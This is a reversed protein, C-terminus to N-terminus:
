EIGRSQEDPKSRVIITLINANPHPIFSETNRAKSPRMMASLLHPSFFLYCFFLPRESLFIYIYLCQQDPCVPSQPAISSHARRPHLPPERLRLKLLGMTKYERKELRSTSDLRRLERSSSRYYKQLKAYVVGLPLFLALLLPSTSSLVVATALLGAAQLYCVSRHICPNAVYNLARCTKFCINYFIPYQHNPVGEPKATLAINRAKCPMWRRIYTCSGYRSIIQKPFVSPM